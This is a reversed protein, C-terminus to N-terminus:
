KANAYAENLLSYLQEKYIPHNEGHTVKLIKSAEQLHQLASVPQDLLLEIKGIKM